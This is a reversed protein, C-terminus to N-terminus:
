EQRGSYALMKGLKEDQQMVDRRLARYRRALLRQPWAILRRSLWAPPSRRAGMYHGLLRRLWLPYHKHILADHLSLLAEYSGPDGQRASRGMLQRDVRYEEHCETSIVHLGGLEAVGPGLKIDTGRGAMNTAITIQGRQGADAIIEAEQSDQRANLVQHPLGRRLLFASLLESDRVSRTGVLVPQGTEHIAAVRELVALWKDGARRYLRFGRDHRRSPRHLPVAIVRQQYISRLEGAVQQLTGSMGGLRLYRQFFRQYSISALTERQGTLVCGEKAEIMQHLGQQWSRDAMTRGTNQDIIEVKGDRVLYHADKEYLHLACLAQQVLFRSHREGAWIGDLSRTLSLLEEGGAETLSLRHERRDVVFDAGERLAGALELAQQFIQEQSDDRHEKSLILPTRAEDILVSDAEDLIAFCLGRLVLQQQQHAQSFKLSLRGSENRSVLRDRLYDFAVQKNTCYVIDAAYAAQRQGTDMSELVATVSLGLAEYLPRMEDADRQALYENTTVVHVPIGALAATAAALTATLSKGEGTAMEAMDGGVIVWAGFLQVDYHRMQLTRRAYERILAFAQFVLPAKLGDRLLAYRTADCHEGLASDTLVELGAAAREVRAAVRTPSYRRWSLKHVVRDLWEIGLREFRSESREERQPYIGLRTGPRLLSDTSM